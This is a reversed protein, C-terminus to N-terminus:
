MSGHINMPLGMQEISILSMMLGRAELRLNSAHGRTICAPTEQYAEVDEHEEAAAPPLRAMEFVEVGQLGGAREGVQNM